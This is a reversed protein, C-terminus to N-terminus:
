DTLRVANATTWANQFNFGGTIGDIDLLEGIVYLHPHTKLNMRSFDIAKLSVGGATVFEEKFVGKSTVQWPIDGKLWRLVARRQEKKLECVPTHPPTDSLPLVYGEWFKQPLSTELFDPMANKLHTKPSLTNVWAQWAQELAEFSMSPVFDLACKAHYGLAALARAAFASLKLVAPGSLGWHTVLVPGQHEFPKKYGEVWLKVKPNSFSTGAFAQLHKDPIGLTFLSPVPPVVPVGLSEFLPYLRPNSGTAFVVHRAKLTDHRKQHTYGLTYFTEDSTLTQFSCQTWLKGGLMRLTNLFCAIITDSANTVPFMRGDQETHLEVGHAKLWDIMDQPQFHRLLNKLPKGGRPYHTSLLVPDFCHHTVNCRGGGSIRVKQLPKEGAELILLRLTPHKELLRIACFVGSAGGGVVVVDYVAQGEEQFFSPQSADDPLHTM